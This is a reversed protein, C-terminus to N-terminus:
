KTEKQRLYWRAIYYIKKATEFYRKKFPYTKWYVRGRKDTNAFYYLIKAIREIAIDDISKM